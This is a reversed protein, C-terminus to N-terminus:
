VSLSLKCERKIGSDVAKDYSELEANIVKLQSEISDKKSDYMEQQQELYQAYASEADADDDALYDSLEETIGEVQRSLIMEEYELRNKELTLTSGEIAFSFIAM